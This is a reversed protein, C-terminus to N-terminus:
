EELPREILVLLASLTVFCIAVAGAAAVIVIWHGSPIDLAVVIAQFAILGLLLVGVIPIIAKWQWGLSPGKGRPQTENM